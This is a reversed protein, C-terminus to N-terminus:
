YIKKHTILEFKGGGIGVARVGKVLPIEGRFEDNATYYM